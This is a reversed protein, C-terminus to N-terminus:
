KDEELITYKIKDRNIEMDECPLNSFYIPCLCLDLDESELEHIRQKLSKKYFINM